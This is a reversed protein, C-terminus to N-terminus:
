LTGTAGACLTLRFFLFLQLTAVQQSRNSVRLRDSSVKGLDGM